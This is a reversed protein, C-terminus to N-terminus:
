SSIGLNKHFPTSFLAHEVEEYNKILERLPEPNQKQLLSLLPISNVGLHKQIQNMYYIPYTCLSEYSIELTNAPPFLQRYVGITESAEELTSHLTHIPLHVQKQTASLKKSHGTQSWQRSNRAICLSLYWRLMNERSLFLIKISPEAELVENLFTLTKAKAQHPLVIKVGATKIHYSYPPFIKRKGETENVLAERVLELDKEGQSMINPHSNLYTHLLTTGTRALGLILFKPYTTRRKISLNNKLEKTYLTRLIKLYNLM